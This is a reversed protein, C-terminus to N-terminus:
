TKKEDDFNKIFNRRKEFLYMYHKYSAVSSIEREAHRSQNSCAKKAMSEAVRPPIVANSIGYDRLKYLGNLTMNFKKSLTEWTVDDGGNAYEKCIRRVGEDGLISFFEKFSRKKDM